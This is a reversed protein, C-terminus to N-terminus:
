QLLCAFGLSVTLVRLAALQAGDAPIPHPM